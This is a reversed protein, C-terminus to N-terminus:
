TLWDNDVSYKREIRTHVVYMPTQRKDFSSGHGPRRKDCLEHNLALTWGEDHGAAGDREASQAPAPDLKSSVTKFTPKVHPPLCLNYPPRLDAFM